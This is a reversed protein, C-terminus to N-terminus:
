KGEKAAFTKLTLSPSGGNTAKGGVIDGVSGPTPPIPFREVFVGALSDAKHILGSSMKYNGTSAKSKKSDKKAM